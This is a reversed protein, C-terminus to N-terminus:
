SVPGAPPGGLAAYEQCAAILAPLVRPDTKVAAPLARTWDGEGYARAVLRTATAADANGAIEGLVWARSDALFDDVISEAGATDGRQALAVAVQEAVDSETNFRQILDKARAM